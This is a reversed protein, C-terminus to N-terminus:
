PAPKAPNLDIVKTGALLDHLCRRGAGFIFLVDVVALAGFLVALPRDVSVGLIPLLLTPAAFIWNRIAVGHLFGAPEGNMRVIRASALMKGLSQGRRTILFWQLLTLGLVAAGAAYGWPGLRLYLELVNGGAGRVQAKSAGMYVIAHAAFHLAADAIAGGLRQWRTALPAGAAAPAPSPAQDTRPPQYPNIPAQPQM